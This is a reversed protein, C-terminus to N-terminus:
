TALKRRVTVLWRHSKAPNRASETDVWIVPVSCGGLPGHQSIAIGQLKGATRKRRRVAQLRPLQFERQERTDQAGSPQQIEFQELV